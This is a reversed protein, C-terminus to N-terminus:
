AGGKVGSSNGGEGREEGKKRRETRNSLSKESTKVNGSPLHTACSGFLLSAPGANGDPCDMNAITNDTHETDCRQEPRRAYYCSEDDNHDNDGCGSDGVGCDDGCDDGDEDYNGLMRHITSMIM